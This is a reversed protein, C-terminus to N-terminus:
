HFHGQLLLTLWHISGGREYGDSALSTSKWQMTIQFDYFLVVSIFQM